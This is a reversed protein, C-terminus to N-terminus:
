SKTYLVTYKEYQYDILDRVVKQEEIEGMTQEEIQQLSKALEYDNMKYEPLDNELNEINKQM